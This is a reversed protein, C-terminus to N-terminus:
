PCHNWVTKLATRGSEAFNAQESAPRVGEGCANLAEASSGTVPLYKLTSRAM